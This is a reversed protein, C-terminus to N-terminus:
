TRLRVKKACNSEIAGMHNGSVNYWSEELYSAIEAWGYREEVLGRGQAGLRHRETKSALLQEVRSAFEVPSDAIMLHEESVVELGEAGISTSVIAKGAAMAELIKLRSGGGIRLPVVVVAARGLYTNTDEVEGVFIVSAINSCRNKLRESPRRGVIRLRADPRCARVIPFIDEIFYNLADVNPYWDLSGLVLIENDSEADSNVYYANLDVGNPVLRISKIGWGRITEADRTTVATVASARRLAQQEFRRMKWEQLQFFMKGIPNQTHHARRALIESEVNHTTVLVPVHCAPPIFRAFPTWECQILDWSRDELLQDLKKQFRASYHKTVSFPHLSFLNVFLSAYLNRSTQDLPPEVLSLEIGAEQIAGVEPTHPSGYCLLSITHRQALRKLLNWTRIRKGANPPYPIEEDLVLVRLSVSESGQTAASLPSDRLSLSRNM